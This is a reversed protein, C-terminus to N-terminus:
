EVEVMSTKVVRVIQARATVMVLNKELLCKLEELETLSYHNYSDADVANEKLQPILVKREVSESTSVVKGVTEQVLPDTLKQRIAMEVDETIPLRGNFYDRDLGLLNGLRKTSYLSVSGERRYKRLTTSSIELWNALKQQSWGDTSAFIQLIKAYTVKAESEQGKSDNIYMEPHKSM